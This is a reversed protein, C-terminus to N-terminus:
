LNWIEEERVENLEVLIDRMRNVSRIEILSKNRKWADHFAARVEPYEEILEQTTMDKVKSKMKQRVNWKALM